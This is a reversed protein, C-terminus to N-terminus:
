PYEQMREVFRQAYWHLLWVFRIFTGSSSAVRTLESWPSTNTRHEGLEVEPSDFACYVATTDFEAVLRRRSPASVCM